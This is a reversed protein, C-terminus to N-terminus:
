GISAIIEHLTEIPLKPTRDFYLLGNVEQQVDTFQTWVFGQLKPAAHIM